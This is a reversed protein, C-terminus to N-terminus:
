AAGLVYQGDLCNPCSEVTASASDVSRIEGCYPCPLTAPLEGLSRAQPTQPMSGDETMPRAMGQQLLLENINITNGTKDEVLIEGLLRGFKETQDDGRKDIITRLLVHRDLVLDRVFDRVKLGAEREPGRVEPTNLKWLRISQGNRWVGLGLDVDVTLTDGDYVDTVYASYYYLKSKLRQQRGIEFDDQRTGARSTVGTTRQRQEPRPSGLVLWAGAGLLILVIAASLLPSAIWDM